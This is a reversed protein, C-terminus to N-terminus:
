SHATRVHTRMSSENPYYIGCTECPFAGEVHNKNQHREVICRVSCTYPCWKCKIGDQKDTGEFHKYALHKSLGRNGKLWANCGPRPCKIAGEFPPEEEVNNKGKGKGGGKQAGKDKGKGIGKEGKKGGKNRHTNYVVKRWATRDQAAQLWGAESVGRDKLARRISDRYRPYTTNGQPRNGEEVWAFLLRKPDRDNQM